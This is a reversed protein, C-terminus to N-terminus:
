RAVKVTKRGNGTLFATVTVYECKGRSANFGFM